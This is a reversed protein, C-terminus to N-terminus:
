SKYFENYTWYTVLGQIRKKYDGYKLPKVIYGAVGETYSNLVDGHNDSTTLIVVPIYRMMSDAKLNKLFEIGNMRPMNLDLLIIDPLEQNSSLFELAEEGHKAEIVQHNQGIGSLVRKFKITEIEDDEILLFTLNHM